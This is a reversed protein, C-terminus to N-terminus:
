FLELCFCKNYKGDSCPFLNTSKKEASISSSSTPPRLEENEVIDEVETKDLLKKKICQFTHPTYM